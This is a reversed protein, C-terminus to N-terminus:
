DHDGGEGGREKEEEGELGRRGIRRREAGKKKLGVTKMQELLIINKKGYQQAHKLQAPINPINGLHIENKNVMSLWVM